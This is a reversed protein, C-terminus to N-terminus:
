VRSASRSRSVSRSTSPQIGDLAVVRGIAPQDKLQRGGFEADMGALRRPVFEREHAVVEVRRHGLQALFPNLEAALRAVLAKPDHRRHEERAAGLHEEVLRLM